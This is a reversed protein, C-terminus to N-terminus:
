VRGYVVRGLARQELMGLEALADDYTYPEPYWVGGFKNDNFEMHETMECVAEIYDSSLPDHAGPHDYFIAKITNTEENELTYPLAWVTISSGARWDYRGGDDACNSDEFAAALILVKAL